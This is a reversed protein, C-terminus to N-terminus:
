VDEDMEQNKHAVTFRKVEGVELRRGHGVKLLLFTKQEGSNETKM